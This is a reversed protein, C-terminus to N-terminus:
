DMKVRHLLHAHVARRDLMMQLYCALQHHTVTHQADTTSPQECPLHKLRRTPPEIRQRACTTRKDRGLPEYPCAHPTHISRSGVAIHASYDTWPHTSM